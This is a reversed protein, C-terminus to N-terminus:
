NILIHKLFRKNLWFSQWCIEISFLKLYLIDLDRSNRAHPRIHIIQTESAKPLNNNRQIRNGKVVENVKIGKTAIDRVMEWEIKIQELQSKTAKWYIVNGITWTDWTDFKMKGDIKIKNKVVPILIFGNSVLDRFECDFDEDWREDVLEAFSFKPFSLAEWPSMNRDVPVTKIVLDNQQLDLIENSGSINLVKNILLRIGSKSKSSFDINYSRTLEMLSKGKLKSNLETIIFEEPKEVSSIPLSEFVVGNVKSAYFYKLYNHKLCFSRQKAEKFNGYLTMKGAGSTSAGLIKSDGESIKHAMENRVKERIREWDSQIIPENDDNLQFRLTRRFKFEKWDRFSLEKPHEYVLFLIERLKQRVPASNWEEIIIDNYNISKIKSREKPLLHPGSKRIPLAKLEIGLYDVDPNPNSNPANGILAELYEGVIGKNLTISIHPYVVSVYEAISVLSANEFQKYFSQLEKINSFVPM